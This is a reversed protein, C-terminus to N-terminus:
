DETVNLVDKFDKYTNISSNPQYAGIIHKTNGFININPYRFFGNGSNSDQTIFNNIGYENAVAIHEADKRNGGYNKYIDLSLSKYDKEEIPLVIGNKSKVYLVADKRSLANLSLRQAETRDITNETKKWDAKHDKYIGENKAKSIYEDVHFFDLIEEEIKSYLFIVSGRRVLEDLYRDIVMGNQRKTFANIISNTDILLEKPFLSNDNWNKQSIDYGKAESSSEKM